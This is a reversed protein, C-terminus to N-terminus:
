KIFKEPDIWKELEKESQVYGKYDIKEGRIIGLHLHKREFGSQSSSDPSLSAIEDGKKAETKKTFTEPDIHGYLVLIPENKYQCEQIIVGGYGSVSTKQAIDGDCIAKVKMDSDLENSFIEFDAGTHFGSFKEPQVPSTEPNIKIGFPKKTVRTLANELPINLTEKEDEEIEKEPVKTITNTDSNRPMEVKNAKPESSFYILLIVFTLLTILITIFITTKNIM